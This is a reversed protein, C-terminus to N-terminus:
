REWYTGRSQGATVNSAASSRRLLTRVNFLSLYQDINAALVQGQPTKSASPWM